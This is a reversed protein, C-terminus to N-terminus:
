KNKPKNLIHRTCHITIGITEMRILMANTKTNTKEHSTAKKM